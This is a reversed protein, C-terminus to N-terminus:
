DFARRVWTLHKAVAGPDDTAAEALWTLTLVRTLWKLKSGFRGDLALDYHAIVQDIFARDGVGILGAFDLVPDGIVADSFDIVGSLRSSEPDVLLHDPCIDNHIFRRPGDQAPELVDGSLYPEALTLLRSDLLPRVRSAVSALGSALVSWPEPEWGLPTPPVRTADVRHLRSLMRGVDKALGDQDLSEIQDAGKGWLLRYGVFAYPFAASPRGVYEFRPVMAGLAEAMLPMIQTERLLWPVREARKPFRFVWNEGLMFLENDWGAALPRAQRNELTPFQESVLDSVLAADLYRDSSGPSM